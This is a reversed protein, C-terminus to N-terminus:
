KKQKSRYKGTTEFPKLVIEIQPRLFWNLIIVLIHTQKHLKYWAWTLIDTGGGALCSLLKLLPSFINGHCMFGDFKLAQSANKEVAGSLPFYHTFKTWLSLLNALFILVDWSFARSNNRNWDRFSTACPWPYFRLLTIVFHLMGYMFFFFSFFFMVLIANQQTELGRTFVM